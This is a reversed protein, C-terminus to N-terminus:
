LSQLISSEMVDVPPVTGTWMGFSAAGQYVLMKAGNMTRAGVSQADELLKTRVPNYILDYVVLDSHLLESKVPSCGENPHMGVPTCNVLLDSDSLHMRLDNEDSIQGYKVDSGIASCIDQALKEAKEPTKNLIVIDAGSKALAFAVAKGSGGAGLVVAKRGRPAFGSESLSQLFGVGDTNSGILKGGVNRITNVSGIERAEDDCEDLFAMVAEKHPITVNVGLIDLAKIGEVAKGLNEPLVDFPVYVFDLNLAEIAAGHMIPSLSHGVPHGIIGIIKTRGSIRM